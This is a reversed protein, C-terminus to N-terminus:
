KKLAYFAMSEKVHTGFKKNISTKNLELTAGEDSREQRMHDHKNNSYNKVHAFCRAEIVSNSHRFKFSLKRLTSLRKRGVVEETRTVKGLSKGHM